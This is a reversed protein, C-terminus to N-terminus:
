DKKHKNLEEFDEEFKFWIGIILTITFLVFSISYIM